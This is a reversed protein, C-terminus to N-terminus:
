FVNQPHLAKLGEDNLSWDGWTLASLCSVKSRWHELFVLDMVLGRLFPSGLVLSCSTCEMVFGFEVFLIETCM